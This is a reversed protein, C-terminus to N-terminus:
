ARCRTSAAERDSPQRSSFCRTIGQHHDAVSEVLLREFASVIQGWDHRLATERAWHATRTRVQEDVAVACVKDVFGTPDDCPLTFGDVGDTVLEAAAACDFAVLPLGSAMAEPVVNGFTETLSPFVFLDASAYHRALDEGRRLGAFHVGTWQREMEARAPGDGVMVLKIDAGRVRAAQWAEHLLTLNKEPALRGVYLMVLTGTGANWSERLAECRRGPHFQHTDVGRSVVAVREFGRRELDLRLAATPVTTCRTKNHFARLYAEIPRHLWGLGYHQSYADFNTRFDSVVPIHLRCAARLASWGLPGQTAIHVVDPRRRTWSQVLTRTCPVGMRLHPYRPIPLGGLLVDDGPREAYSLQDSHQRVRVLQIAHNRARLGEVLRSLSLAVGNVEPTYTETAVAVRLAHSRPSPGDVENRLNSQM